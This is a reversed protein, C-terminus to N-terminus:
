RAAISGRGLVRDRARPVVAGAGRSQRRPARRDQVRLTRFSRKVTSKDPARGRRHSLSNRDILPRDKARLERHTAKAKGPHRALDAAQHHKRDAPMPNHLGAAIANNSRPEVRVNYPPDSNVLHVREGALLRDVHARDSSDGCLVRHDGLKWLDGLQTTANKPPAPVEDPDTLGASVTGSLLDALEQDDFGFLSWDLQAGRLDGLELALLEADFTAIAGVKNDVIRYAKVQEPTLDRAVHVPVEALGLRVAAFYRV